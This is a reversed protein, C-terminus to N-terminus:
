SLFRSGQMLTYKSSSVGMSKIAKIDEEYFHYSNAVDGTDSRDAVKEPHEHTFTDWISPGKGKTNWSGEIQFASTAAGFLFDDPFKGIPIKSIAQVSCATTLLIFLERPSIRFKM